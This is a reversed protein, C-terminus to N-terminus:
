LIAQEIAKREGEAWHIAAARPTVFSICHWPAFTHSMYHEENFLIRAEVGYQGHDVLECRIRTRGSLYEYLLKGQRPIRPGPAPAFPSYNEDRSM